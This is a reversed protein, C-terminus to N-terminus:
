INFQKSQQATQNSSMNCLQKQTGRSKNVGIEMGTIGTMYYALM